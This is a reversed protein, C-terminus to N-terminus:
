VGRFSVILQTLTDFAAAIRQRTIEGLRAKAKASLKPNARLQERLEADAAKVDDLVRGLANTLADGAAKGRLLEYRLTALERRQEMTSAVDPQAARRLLVSALVVRYSDDTRWALHWNALHEKLDDILVAVANGNQFARLRRVKDRETALEQLLGIFRTTAALRPDDAAPLPAGTGTVAQLLGNASRAFGLAEALDKVPDPGKDNVIEAIGDGYAGLAKILVFTPVLQDAITGMTFPTTGATRNPACLWGPPPAGIDRILESRTPNWLYAPDRACQPDLAIIHVDTAMRADQVEDVYAASAAAAAQAKTAAGGATEIRLTDLCGSLLLALTLAAAAQPRKLTPVLTRTAFTARALHIM